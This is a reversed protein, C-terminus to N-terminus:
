TLESEAKELRDLFDKQLKVKEVKIKDKMDEYMKSKQLWNEVDNANEEAFLNEIMEQMVRILERNGTEKIYRMITNWTMHASDYGEIFTDFREQLDANEKRLVQSICRLNLQGSRKGEDTPLGKVKNFYYKCGKQIALMIHGPINKLHSQAKKAAIKKGDKSEEDEFTESRNRSDHESGSREENMSTSLARTTETQFISESKIPQSM